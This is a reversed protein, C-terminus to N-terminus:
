RVSESMRALPALQLLKRAPKLFPVLHGGRLNNNRWAAVVELNAKAINSLSSGSKGGPAMNVISRGLYKVSVDNKFLLRLMLEYDAAIPYKLDFTGFREYIHRRVFFTPHPPMWGFYWKWRSHVGSKWYRVVSGSESTYTMDGYCTNTEDNSLTELVDRIVLHDSYQDDANLIGVVDGTALSIGKNMGDYIGRDPESVIVTVRSRYQELLKLTGDTSCADIVIMELEHEHQQALVSDLARGVRIDNFVPTVVSIKM